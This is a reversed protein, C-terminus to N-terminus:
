VIRIAQNIKTFNCERSGSVVGVANGLYRTIKGTDGIIRRREIHDDMDIDVALVASKGHGLRIDRHERILHM